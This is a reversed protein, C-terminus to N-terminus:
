GWSTKACRRRTSAWTPAPWRLKGPTKSLVFPPGDYAARGTESHDLYVYYGRGKIQEDCDLLERASQVVGAPVGAAQLSHMLEYADKDATWANLNVELEAENAKRAALTQFKADTSWAPNGMAGVLATWEDETFCAIVCWRQDSAAGGESFQKCRFANHPAAYPLGNGSRTQV